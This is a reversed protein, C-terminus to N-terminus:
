PQINIDIAEPLRLIPADSATQEGLPCFHEIGSEAESERKQQRHKCNTGLPQKRAREGAAIWTTSELQQCKDICKM